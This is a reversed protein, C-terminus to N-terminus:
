EIAIQFLDQKSFLFSCGGGAGGNGGQVELGQDARLALVDHFGRKALWLLVTQDSDEDPVSLRTLHAQTIVLDARAEPPVRGFEQTLEKTLHEVAQPM